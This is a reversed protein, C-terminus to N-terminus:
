LCGPNLVLTPSPPLLFYLSTRDVFKVTSNSKRDPPCSEITGAEPSPLASWLQRRSRYSSRFICSLWETKQSLYGEAESLNEKRDSAQFSPMFLLMKSPVTDCSFSLCLLQLCFHTKTLHGFQSFHHKRLIWWIFWILFDSWKRLVLSFLQKKGKNFTTLPNQHAENM